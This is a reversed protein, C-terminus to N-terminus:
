AGDQGREKPVLLTKPRAAEAARFLSFTQNVSSAVGAMSAMWREIEPTREVPVVQVPRDPGDAEFQCYFLPDGRKLILDKGTDHWEFAWMLPRLWAHIPFRGGFITGPLPESRYHAFADLQTIYCIEEAVFCYGLSLQITPKDPYRWESEQVLHVVQGLKGARLTGRPGARNVLQPQGKDGRTFGIHIDYPCRILFYRSELQVVGPCRAASKAHMKNTGRFSVREPPFMVISSTDHDMFWGVTVPGSKPSFDPRQLTIGIEMM